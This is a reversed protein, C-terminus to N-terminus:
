KGDAKTLNGFSEVTKKTFTSPPNTTMRVNLSFTKHLSKLSSAGAQDSVGNKSIVTINYLVSSKLKSMTVQTTTLDIQSPWFQVGSCNDLCSGMNLCASCRVYYKVDERGGDSVPRSWTVLVISDAVM